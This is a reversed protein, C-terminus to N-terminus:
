TLYNALALGVIALFSLLGVIGAAMSSSAEEYNSAAPQEM